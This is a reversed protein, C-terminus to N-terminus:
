SGLKRRIGIEGIYQVELYGITFQYSRKLQCHFMEETSLSVNHRINPMYDDLIRSIPKEEKTIERKVAKM